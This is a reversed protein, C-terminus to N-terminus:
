GARYDCACTATIQCITRPAEMLLRIGEWCCPADRGIYSTYRHLPLTLRLRPKRIPQLARRAGRDDTSAQRQGSAADRVILTGSGTRSPVFRTILQIVEPPPAPLTTSLWFPCSDPTLTTTCCLLTDTPTNSRPATSLDLLPVLYRHSFVNSM